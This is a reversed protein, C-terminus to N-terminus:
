KHMGGVEGRGMINKEKRKEGEIEERIEKEKKGEGNVVKGLGLSEPRSTPWPPSPLHPTQIQSYPSQPPTLIEENKPSSCQTSDYPTHHGAEGMVLVVHVKTM